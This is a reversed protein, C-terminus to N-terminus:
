SLISPCLSPVVGRVVVCSMSCAFALNSANSTLSFQIVQSAISFSNTTRVAWSWCTCSLFLAKCCWSLLAGLFGPWPPLFPCLFFSFLGILRIFPSPFHDFRSWVLSGGLDKFPLSIIPTRMMLFPSKVLRIFAAQVLVFAVAFGLRLASTTGLSTSWSSDKILSSERFFSPTRARYGVWGQNGPSM